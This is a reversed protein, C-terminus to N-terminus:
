GRGRSSRVLLQPRILIVVVARNRATQLSGGLASAGLGPLGSDSTSETISQYGALVLLDGNGMIAEQLFSRINIDPLQIKSGNAEFSDLSRLDSLSLGYQLLVDGDDLICPLIQMNFGTMFSGPVLQTQSAAALASGLTTAASAVYNRQEAVSVPAAQGNLTTISTETMLTVRGLTQLADVVAHTANATAAGTALQNNGKGPLAQILYSAPTGTTPTVPMPGALNVAYHGAMQQFILGLDLGLDYNEGTDVRLVTVSVTVQRTMRENQQELYEAIRRMAEPPALVTVTGTGPSMVVKGGDPLMAQVAEKIDDWLKITTEHTIDQLMSGNTATATGVSSSASSSQAASGGTTNVAAKVKANSPLAALTFTRVENQFLRILQGKYEWNVGFNTAVSDLLGSLPGNWAVAMGGRLLGAPQAPTSNTGRAEETRVELAVKIGSQATVESVIEKLSMPAGFSNLVIAGAKEMAPPLPEGNPEAVSHGGVWIGDHMLVTGSRVAQAQASGTALFKEADRIKDATGENAEQPVACGALSLLGILASLIELAKM